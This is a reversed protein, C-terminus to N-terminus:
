AGGWADIAKLNAQHQNDLRDYAEQQSAPSATQDINAIGTMFANQSTTKASRKGNRAALMYDANKQETRIKEQSKNNLLTSVLDVQIGTIKTAEQAASVKERSTAGIKAAAVQASSNIGAASVTADASIRASSVQASASIRTGM